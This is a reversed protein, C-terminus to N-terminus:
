WTGSKCDPAIRNCLCRNDSWGNFPSLSHGPSFNNSTDTECNEWLASIAAEVKLRAFIDMVCAGLDPAAFASINAKGILPGGHGLVFWSSRLKGPSNGMKGVVLWRCCFSGAACTM